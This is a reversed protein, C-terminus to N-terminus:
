VATCSRSGPSLDPKPSCPSTWRKCLLDIRKNLARADKPATAADEFGQVCYIYNNACSWTDDRRGPAHVTTVARFPNQQPPLVFHARLAEQM